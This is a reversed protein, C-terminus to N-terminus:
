VWGRVMENEFLFRSLKKEEKEHLFIIFFTVYIRLELGNLTVHCALYAWINQCCHQSGTIHVCVSVRENVHSVDTVKKCLAEM